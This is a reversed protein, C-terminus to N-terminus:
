GHGAGRARVRAILKALGHPGLALLPMPDGAEFFAHTSARVSLARAIKAWPTRRAAALLAFTDLMENRFSVGPVYEVPKVTKGRLLDVWIGPLNQGAALALSLSGYVRPNLDILLRGAETEIFQLQFLGTWGLASLLRGVQAEFEPDNPLAVAFAMQGCDHPWTRIAQQHVAAVVQGDWFVGALSSLRGSQYAQVLGRGDPLSRLAAIAQERTFVLNVACARFGGNSPVESRAPKVVVPLEAPLAGRSAQDATMAFTPPVQLGVGAALEALREKDTALYVVERECVALTSREGPGGDRQDALALMGREGGPLIAVPDIRAAVDAVGKVFARSSVAPDPVTVVGAVARSHAAPANRRVAAVWPEYGARELGRVMAIVGVNDGDTILVRPRAGATTSPTVLPTAAM